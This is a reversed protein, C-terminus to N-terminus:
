YSSANWLNFISRSWSAWCYWCYISWSLECLVWSCVWTDVNISSRSSSTSFFLSNSFLIVSICDFWPLNMNGLDLCCRWWKPYIKHMMIAIKHNTMCYLKSHDTVRIRSCNGHFYQLKKQPPPSLLAFSNCKPLSLFFAPAVSHLNTHVLFKDINM